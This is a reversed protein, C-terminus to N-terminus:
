AAKRLRARTYVCLLFCFILQVCFIVMATISMTNFFPQKAKTTGKIADSTDDTAAHASATAVMASFVLFVAKTNM